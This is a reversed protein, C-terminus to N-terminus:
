KRSIYQSITFVNDEKVEEAKEVKEIAEGMQYAGSERAMQTVSCVPCCFVACCDGCCDGVINRKRRVAGRVCCAIPCFLFASAVGCVACNGFGVAEAAQGVPICPVFCSLVCLGPNSCCGCFENTFHFAAKQQVGNNIIIPAPAAQVPQQQIIQPQQMMPNMQVQNPMMQVPQMQVPIQQMQVQPLAQQTQVAGAIPLANTQNYNPPAAKNADNEVVENVSKMIKNATNEAM